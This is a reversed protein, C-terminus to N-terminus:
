AKAIIQKMEDKREEYMNETSNIIGAMPDGEERQSVANQLTAEVRVFRLHKDHMHIQLKELEEHRKSFEQDKMAIKQVLRDAELQLSQNSTELQVRQEEASKLKEAGMLIEFNLRKADEQARQDYWLNSSIYTLGVKHNLIGNVMCYLNQKNELLYTVLIM